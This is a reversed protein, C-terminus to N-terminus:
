NKFVETKAKPSTQYSIFKDSMGCLELLKALAIDFDYMAKLREIKVKVMTLNADVVDSSSAMGEHFAKEKVRLYENTFEGATELDKIQELSMQLEQYYKEVGTQIDKSVKQEFENVQSLKLQASKRNRGRAMGDFLTWKLGVGVTWKPVYESLEWNWVDYTGFAAVSPLYSATKVNVGIQALSKKSEVRKLSPNNKQAEQEFYSMPEIDEIYFLASIPLIDRQSSDNLTNLLARNSISTIRVAKKLDRDAQSHFVKAHLVEAKAIMGQEKMKIADDLHKQMADLVEQRVQEAQKSLCLGFYREVLETTLKNNKSKAELVADEIELKAAKHKANIKGGTYIPVAATLNVAAFQQKQIIKNWEGGELAALGKEFQQRMYMTSMQDPLVGGQPNPVGSFVGFQSLGQYIPSIADKVPTLDLHLDESMYVYNASLGIRPYHLGTAAKLEQEKQQKLYESQKVVHSQQKTLSMAEEFTLKTAEGDQAMAFHSITTIAFIILLYRKIQTNM